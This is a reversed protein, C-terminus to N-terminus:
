AGGKVIGIPAVLAAGVEASVLFMTGDVHLPAKVPEMRIPIGREDRRTLVAVAPAVAPDAFAFWRGSPLGTLVSVSVRTELGVDRLLKITSYELAPEVALHALALGAKDGGATEQNRLAAMAQALTTADLASAVVNNRAADFFAAGDDLIPNTGLAAVVHTAELRAGSAGVQQGLAMLLDFRDNIIERRRFLVSRAHRVLVADPVGPGSSVYGATVEGSEGVPLPQVLVDFNAVEVPRFNKAPMHACFRRHEALQDFALIVRPEVAKALSASFEGTAMGTDLAAMDSTFRRGPYAVAAAAHAAARMNVQDVLPHPHSVREGYALRLADPLAALIDNPHM